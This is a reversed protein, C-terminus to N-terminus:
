IFHQSFRMQSPTPPMLVNHLAIQRITATINSVSAKRLKGGIIPPINPAKSLTPFITTM